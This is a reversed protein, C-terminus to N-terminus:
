DMRRSLVLGFISFLLLPIHLVGLWITDPSAWHTLNYIGYLIGNFATVRLAFKPVAPHFLILFYLLVPTMFCYSLGYDPSALLKLLSFDAIVRSGNIKLPSWFVLLAFPLLYWKWRPVARFSVKLKHSGIVSIWMLGLLLNMLLTGTLVVSGYDPTRATAQVCAIVLYNFGFFISFWTEKGRLEFAIFLITIVTGLHFFWGWWHLNPTIANQLVQFIVDPIEQPDYPRTSIPPLFSLLIFFLYVCLYLYRRDIIKKKM